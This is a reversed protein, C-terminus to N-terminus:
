WTIHHIEVRKNEKYKQEQNENEEKRREKEKELITHFEYAAYKQLNIYM